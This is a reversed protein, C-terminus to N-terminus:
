AHISPAEPLPNLSCVSWGPLLPCDLRYTSPDPTVWPSPPSPLLSSSCLPLPLWFGSTL